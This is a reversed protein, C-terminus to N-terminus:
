AFSVSYKCQVNVTSANSTANGVRNKAVCRYEGRDTRSGNTITLQKNNVSFSIRSNNSTDLPSGNRTWSITPAPNGSANCSLTIDEGERITVGRPQVTISPKETFGCHLLCYTCQFAYINDGKGNWNEM